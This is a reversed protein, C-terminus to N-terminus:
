TPDPPAYLACARCVAPIDGGCWRRVLEFHKQGFLLADLPEHKLNGLVLEDHPDDQYRCPCLRLSGDPLVTAAPALLMCCPPDGKAAGGTAVRMSQSFAGTDVAGAWTDFEVSGDAPDFFLGGAKFLPALRLFGEDQFTEEFPRYTRLCLNVRGRAGALKARGLAELGTMVAAYRGTRFVKRYAEPMLGPSSVSIGDALDLLRRATVDDQPLLTGNTTVRIDNMGADRAAELLELFQPHLMGEGMIPSFDAGRIGLAAMQALIDRCLGADLLQRGRPKHSCPCFICACNCDSSLTFHLKDPLRRLAERFMEPSACRDLIAQTLAPDAKPAPPKPANVVDLDLFVFLPKGGGHARLVPIIEDYCYAAIIVFDHGAEAARAGPLLPLGQHTDAQPSGSLYAVPTIDPRHQRLQALLKAARGGTGYIAAKGGLPIQSAHHIM